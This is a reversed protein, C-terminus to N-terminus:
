LRLKESLISFAIREMYSALHDTLKIWEAWITGYFRCPEDQPKKM